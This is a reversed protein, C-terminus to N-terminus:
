NCFLFKLSFLPVKTRKERKVEKEVIILIFLLVLSAKKYVM